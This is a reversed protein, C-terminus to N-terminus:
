IILTDKNNILSCQSVFVFNFLKAKKNFDTAFEDKHYLPSIISKRQVSKSKKGYQCLVNVKSTSKVFALCDNIIPLVILQMLM